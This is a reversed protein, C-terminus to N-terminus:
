QQPSTFVNNAHQTLTRGRQLSGPSIRNGEVLGQLSCAQPLLLGAVPEGTLEPGFALAPTGSRDSSCIIHERKHALKAWSTKRGSLTV